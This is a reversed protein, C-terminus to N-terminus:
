ERDGLPLRGDNLPYDRAKTPIGSNGRCGAQFHESSGCRYCHQCFNEGQQQCAPCRPRPRPVPYRQPAFRQQFQATGRTLRPDGAGQYEQLPGRNIHRVAADDTSWPSLHPPTYAMQHPFSYQVEQCM